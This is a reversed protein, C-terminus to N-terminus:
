NSILSDIQSSKLVIQSCHEIYSLSMSFSCSIMYSLNSGTKNEDNQQKNRKTVTIIIETVTIAIFIAGQSRKRHHLCVCRRNGALNHANPKPKQSIFVFVAVALNTETETELQSRKSSYSQQSVLHALSLIPM